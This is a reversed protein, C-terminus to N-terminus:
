RLKKGDLILFPNEANKLNVVKRNKYEEKQRFFLFFKREEKQTLKIFM